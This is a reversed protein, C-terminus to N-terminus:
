EVVLLSNVFIKDLGFKPVRTPVTITENRLVNYIEWKKILHIIVYMSIYNFM